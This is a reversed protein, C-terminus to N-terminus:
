RFSNQVMCYPHICTVICKDFGVSHTVCDVRIYGILQTLLLPVINTVLQFSYVVLIGSQFIKLLLVSRLGGSVLLTGETGM